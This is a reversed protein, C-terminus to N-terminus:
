CQIYIYGIGPLTAHLVHGAALTLSLSQQRLLSARMLPRCVCVVQGMKTRYYLQHRESSQFLSGSQRIPMTSSTNTKNQKKVGEPGRPFNDLANLRRSSLETVNGGEPFSRYRHAASIFSIYIYRGVVKSSGSQETKDSLEVLLDKWFHIARSNLSM